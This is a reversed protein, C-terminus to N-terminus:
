LQNELGLARQLSRIAADRRNRVTKEACNLIKRITVANPDISDMPIGARLMVIIRSQEPRLGDIAAELRSRYRPDDWIEPPTTELSGAAREVQLSLEGAENQPEMTQHRAAERWVKEKATARLKAVGAAFRAEFFDLRSGPNARDELLMEQFRDRVQDRIRARNLDVGEGQALPHEVRPLSQDIRSMLARYLQEFFSERNDWRSRRLLHVLCESAIHRPDGLDRVSLANVIEDRSLDLVRVLAAEIDPPRQYISGDARRKTLAPPRLESGELGEGVTAAFGDTQIRYL